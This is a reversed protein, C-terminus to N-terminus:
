GRAKMAEFNCSFHQQANPDGTEGPPMYFPPQLARILLYRTTGLTTEALNDLARYIDEILDRSAEYDNLQGIVAVQFRSVEAVPAGLSPGMARIAPRGGYEVVAVQIDATATEPVPVKFLNTGVTLGLGATGLYEAVDDVLM